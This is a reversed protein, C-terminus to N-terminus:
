LQVAEVKVARAAALAAAVSEHAALGSLMRLTPPHLLRGQRAATELM